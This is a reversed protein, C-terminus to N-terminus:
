LGFSMQPELELRYRAVHKGSPTKYNETKIDYGLKRLGYIRGGLRLTNFRELAELPTLSNGAKLWELIKAEQSQTNNM